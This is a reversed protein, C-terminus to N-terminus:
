GVVPVSNSANVMEDWEVIKKRERGELEGQRREEADLRYWGDWTTYTINREELLEVIDGKGPKGPTPLQNNAADHLLM